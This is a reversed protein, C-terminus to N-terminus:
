ISLHSFLKETKAYYNEVGPFLLVKNKIDSVFAKRAALNRFMPDADRKLTDAWIPDSFVEELLELKKETELEAVFVNGVAEEVLSLHVAYLFDENLKSITGYSELYEKTATWLDRYSSLNAEISIHSLSPPYQYYQYM